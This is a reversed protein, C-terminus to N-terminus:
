RLILFLGDILCNSVTWLIKEITEIQTKPEKLMVMMKQIAGSNRVAIISRDKFFYIYFEFFNFNLDMGDMCINGLTWCAQVKTLPQDLLAVILNVCNGACIAKRADETFYFM